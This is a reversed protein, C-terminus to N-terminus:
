RERKTSDQLYVEILGEPLNFFIQQCANDIKDIFSKVLPILVEKGEMTTQALFQAPMEVISEVKGITQNTRNDIIEFGLIEHYYFYDEDLVPLESLPLYLKRGRLARAKEVTDIEELHLIVDKGKLRIEKVFYPVLEHELEIFVSEIDLYEELYDVDFHATLGGKLGHTQRIMGLEFCDEKEPIM